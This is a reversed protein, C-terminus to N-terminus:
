HPLPGPRAHAGPDPSGPPFLALTKKLEKYSWHLQEVEAKHQARVQGLEELLHENTSVLSSHSEQLMQILEQIRDHHELHQKLEATEGSLKEVSAQLGSLQLSLTASAGANGVDKKMSFLLSKLSSNEELSRELRKRSDDLERRSMSLQAMLESVKAQQQQQQEVLHSQLSKNELTMYSIEENVVSSDRAATFAQVSSLLHRAQALFAEDGLLSRCGDGHRSVLSLLAELFADELAARPGSPAEAHLERTSSVGHARAEEAAAESRSGTSDRRSLRDKPSLPGDPRGLCSPCAQGRPEQFWSSPMRRKQHKEAARPVLLSSKQSSALDEAGPSDAHPPGHPHLLCAHQADPQDGSRPLPDGCHPSREPFRRQLSGRRWAQGKEMSDGGQHQAPRFNLLAGPEGRSSHFESEQEKQSSSASGPPNSLGWECEAILNLVAEDDADLVPCKQSVSDPCMRRSRHPRGVKLAAPSGHKSDLSKQPAFHLQSAKRESERVPRDDPVRYISKVWTVSGCRQLM